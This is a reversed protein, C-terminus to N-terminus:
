KAPVAKVLPQALKEQVEVLTTSARAIAELHPQMNEIAKALRTLADIDRDSLM